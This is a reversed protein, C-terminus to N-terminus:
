GAVAQRRDGAADAPLSRRERGIRHSAGHGRDAPRSRRDAHEGLGRLRGVVGDSRAAQRASQDARGKWGRGPYARVRRDGEREGGRRRQVGTRNGRRDRDSGHAPSSWSILICFWSLADPISGRDLYSSLETAIWRCQTATDGGRKEASRDVADRSSTRHERWNETVCAALAIWLGISARWSGFPDFTPADSRDHDAIESAYISRKMSM